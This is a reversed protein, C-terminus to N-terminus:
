ATVIAGAHRLHPWILGDCHPWTLSDREDALAKAVELDSWASSPAAALQDLLETHLRTVEGTGWPSTDQGTAFFESSDVGSHNWDARLPETTRRM